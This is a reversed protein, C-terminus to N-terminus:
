KDKMIQTVITNVIAPIRNITIVTTKLGTVELRGNAYVKYHFTGATDIIEFAPTENPDMSM